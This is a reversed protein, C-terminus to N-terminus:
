PAALAMIEPQTLARDYYRLEDLRGHWGYVFSGGNRDGGLVIDQTDFDIAPGAISAARTGNIYFSKLTGDWVGALHFWVGTPLVAPACAWEATVGNTTEFCTKMNAVSWAVLAFSDSSAAGVPKGIAVQDIQTDLYVWLAVTLSTTVLAPQHQILAYQSTGNFQLGMGHKGAVQTPCSLGSVCTAGFGHGSTDDILGDSPDDDFGLYFVTDAGAADIAADIAIDTVVPVDTPASDGFGFRGCGALVVVIAWRV